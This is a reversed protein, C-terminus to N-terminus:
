ADRRLPEHQRILAIFVDELSPVFRRVTVEAIGHAELARKVTEPSACTPDFFVRLAAGFLEVSVLGECHQLVRRAKAHDPTLIECGRESFESRLAEAPACRLVRGRYLFGLRTAREAEELYATTFVITVGERRLEALLAWVDRRSIPDIGTTPEDLFLIQPRHILACALALKQRMGGSLQHARYQRFPELRTVRLLDGMRAERVRAPLGYLDAYFRVNEEVSLDDYIGPRQAVYGVHERILERQRRVDYGVVEIEGAEPELVGCLMRLVTTKGAGDPGVLGFIEGRRVELDLREVAVLEGFRRTVGRARVVIDTSIREM